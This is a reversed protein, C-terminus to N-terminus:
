SLAQRRDFVGETSLEVAQRLKQRAAGSDISDAAMKLGESIDDTLGATYLTLATSLSTAERPAGPEGELIKQVVLANQLADGGAMEERHARKLGIDEPVILYTRKQGRVLESVVTEGMINVEDLSEAGYVVTARKFGLAQLIDVTEETRGDEYVGLAAYPAGAPNVLPQIRNFISRFGLTHMVHAVERWPDRTAPVYHFGVGIQRLSREVQTSTIDLNIGLNELVSDSGCLSSHMLTGSKIVKAGAGAAVFATAISIPFLRTGPKGNQFMRSITEAEMHIEMRDLTILGDEVTLAPCRDKFARAAGILEEASEGKARLAAALAAVQAEKIEGSLIRGMIEYTEHETLHSGDMVKIIAERIMILVEFKKAGSCFPRQAKKLGAATVM